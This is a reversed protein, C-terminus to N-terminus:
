QPQCTGTNSGGKKQHVFCGLFFWRFGGDDNLM